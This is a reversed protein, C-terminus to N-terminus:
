RRKKKTESAKVAKSATPTSVRGGPIDLSEKPERFFKSEELMEQTYDVIIMFVKLVDNGDKPVPESSEKVVRDAVEFMKQVIEFVEPALELPLTRIKYEKGRITVTKM